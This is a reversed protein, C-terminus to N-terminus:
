LKCCADKSAKALTRKTPPLRSALGRTSGGSGYAKNVKRSTKYASALTDRFGGAQRQWKAQKLYTKVKPKM